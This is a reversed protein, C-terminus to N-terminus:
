SDNIYINELMRAWLVCLLIVNSEIMPNMKQIRCQALLTDHLVNTIPVSYVM